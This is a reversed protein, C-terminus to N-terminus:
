GQRRPIRQEALDLARQVRRLVVNDIEGGRRLEILAKREAAIVEREADADRRQDDAEDADVDDGALRRKREYRRRLTIAHHADIRGGRELADIEALAATAIAVQARRIEEGEEDREEAIKLARIAAPLTFGGGVLTVLIVTFTLFIILDRHPFPTGGAVATPIALAAALSIAGRFGSWAAIVAHKWNPEPHESSGGIFPVYETALFWAFRIAIVAVNVVVAYGVVSSWSYQGSLAAVIERLQLGVLFFLVTNAIFVSTEWFGFGRLRTEPVLVNPTERNAYVGATVTALVGSLGLRDAPL